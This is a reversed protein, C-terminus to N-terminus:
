MLILRRVTEKRMLIQDGKTEKHPSKITEWITGFGARTDKVEIKEAEVQGFTLLLTLKSIRLVLM